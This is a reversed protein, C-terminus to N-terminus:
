AINGLIKGTTNRYMDIIDAAKYNATHSGWLYAAWVYEKSITDSDGVGHLKYVRVSDTLTNELYQEVFQAVTPKETDETFDLEWADAWTPDTYYIKGTEDTHIVWVHSEGADGNQTYTPVGALNCMHHYLLAYASCVGTASEIAVGPIFIELADDYILYFSLWAAIVEARQRYSMSKGLLGAETLQRLAEESFNEKVEIYYDASEQPFFRERYSQTITVSSKGQMAFDFDYLLRYEPLISYIYNVATFCNGLTGAKDLEGGTSVLTRETEGNLAMYLLTAAYERVTTDPTCSSLVALDHEYYSRDATFHEEPVLEQRLAASAEPDSEDMLRLAALLQVRENQEAYYYVMEEATAAMEELMQQTDKYNEARIGSLTRYANLWQGQAYMRWGDEYVTNVTSLRRCEEALQDCDRFDGLALFEEAATDFLGIEMYHAAKEYRQQLLQELLQAAESSNSLGTLLECAEQLKGAQSLQSAIRCSIEAIEKDVDCFEAISKYLELAKRDNGQQAFVLADLYTIYHAANQYDGLARFAERAEAFEGRMLSAEAMRYRAFPSRMVLVAIVATLSMVAAVIGITRLINGKDRTSHNTKEVSTIQLNNDQQM